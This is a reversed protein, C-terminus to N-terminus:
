NNETDNQAPTGGDSGAPNTREERKEKGLLKFETALIARCCGAVPYLDTIQVNDSANILTAKLNCYYRISRLRKAPDIQLPLTFSLISTRHWLATV